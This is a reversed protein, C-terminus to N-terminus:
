PVIKRVLRKAKSLARRLPHHKPKVEEHGPYLRPLASLHVQQPAYAPNEVEFKRIRQAFFPFFQHKDLILDRAHAIADRNKLWLDSAITDKIIELAEQPREINIKVMAEAPLYDEINTCGYYIPMTWSLFCDMLKETWYYPSSHNEFVLSYRYPTHGEWKGPVCTYGEAEKERRIDDVSRNPFKRQLYDLTAIWDFETTDRLNLLFDLRRRHGPRSAAMSTITSLVKPKEPPPCSKLFDYDKDVHWPTAPQGHNYKDGQLSIDQTIVRHFNSFGQQLWAYEPVPPEQILVWIHEPPCNITVDAPIRNFAVLYDCEEIADLTFQISDWEDSYGPTQRLLNPYDWDKVIRVRTM